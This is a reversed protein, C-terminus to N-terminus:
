VSITRPPRELGAPIHGTVFQSPSVAVLEVSTYIPILALGSPIVAAGLCCAACASCSSITHKHQGSSGHGAPADMVEDSAHGSSATDHHHHHDMADSQSHGIHVHAAQPSAAHASGCSLMAAAALGQVPIAMILLWLLWIKFIRNM